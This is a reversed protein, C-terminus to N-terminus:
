VKQAQPYRADIHDKDWPAAQHLELQSHNRAPAHVLCAIAEELTTDQHQREKHPTLITQAYHLLSQRIAAPSIDDAPILHVASPTPRRSREDLLAKSLLHPAFAAPDIPDAPDLGNTRLMRDVADLDAFAAKHWDVVSTGSLVLRLAEVGAEDLAVRTRRVLGHTTLLPQLDVVERLRDRLLGRSSTWGEPRLEFNRSAGVRAGDDSWLVAGDPLVELALGAAALRRDVTDLVASYAVAPAGFALGQASLAKDLRRRDVPGDTSLRARRV